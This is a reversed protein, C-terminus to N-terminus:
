YSRFEALQYLHNNHPTVLRLWPQQTLAQTGPGYSFIKLSKREAVQGLRDLVRQLIYGTFPTFLFFATGDAYDLSRADANFFHVRTLRLADACAQAHQCYAPEIEVGKATAGTLLRVLMPVQGLGSGLDYFTDHAALSAALEWIIRAPTKQYYVMEPERTPVEILSDPKLFLGDTLVDLSDYSTAPSSGNSIGAPGMYTALLARLGDPTYQGTWILKQLRRFLHKDLGELRKKLATAQNSLCNLAASQGAALLNDLRDIVHFELEDLADARSSFNAEMFLTPQAAINDLTTQIEAIVM